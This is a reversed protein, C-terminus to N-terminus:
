RRSLLEPPVKSCGPSIRESPNIGSLREGRAGDMLVRDGLPRSLPVERCVLKAIPHFVGPGPPRELVTITIAQNTEALEVRALEFAPATEYFVRLLDGDETQEFRQLQRPTLDPASPSTAAESGAPAENGGCASLVAAMAPLALWDLLSRRSRNRVRM